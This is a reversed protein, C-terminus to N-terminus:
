QARVVSVNKPQAMRDRHGSNVQTIWDKVCLTLYEYKEATAFVTIKGRSFIAAEVLSPSYPNVCIVGEEEGGKHPANGSIVLSGGDYAISGRVNTNQMLKPVQNGVVRKLDVSVAPEKLLGDSDDRGPAATYKALLAKAQAERAKAQEMNKQQAPSMTQAMANPAILAIGLAALAVGALRRTSALFLRNLTRNWNM